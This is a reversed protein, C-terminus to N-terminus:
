NVKKYVFVGQGAYITTYGKGLTLPSRVVIYAAKSANVPYKYIYPRSSLHSGLNNDVSIIDKIPITSALKAIEKSDQQSINLSTAITASSIYNRSLPLPSAVYYVIAMGIIIPVFAIWKKSVSFRQSLFSQLRKFGIITSLVVFSNIVAPYQYYISQMAPDRSLLDILLEPLSIFFTLPALLSVVGTQLLMEGGYTIGRPGQAQIIQVPHTITYWIVGLAGHDSGAYNHIYISPGHRVLPIIHTIVVYSYSLCFLTLVLLLINAQKKKAFNERISQWVKSIHFYDQWKTLTVTNAFFFYLAMFSLTFGVEEKCILALLVFLLGIKYKEKYLFYFAYLIFTVSLLVAHFDFLNPNEVSPMLLFIAAFFLPIYTSSLKEKAFLYVPIAGFAIVITQLVLLFQPTQFLAYLPAILILLFDAHDSLRSVLDGKGTPDSLMYFHGHLTNWIIQNANGLDFIGSYFGNYRSLTAYSFYGIYLLLLLALLIYPRKLFRYVSQLM